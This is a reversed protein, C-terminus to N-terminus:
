WQPEIVVSTVRPPRRTCTARGRTRLVLPPSAVKGETVRNRSRSGSLARTICCSSTEVPALPQALREAIDEAIGRHHLPALEV